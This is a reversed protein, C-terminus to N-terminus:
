RLRQALGSRRHVRRRVCSRIASEGALIWAQKKSRTLATYLLERSLGGSAGPPLVILVKDYESGQSKHISMAFAPEYVGLRALSLSRMGDETGSSEFYARLKGDDDRDIIGVDGNSLGTAPDNRTMMISMARRSDGREGLQQRSPWAHRWLAQNTAHVGLPGNKTACLVQFRHGALLREKPSNAKWHDHYGKACESIWARWPDHSSGASAEDLELWRLEEQSPDRLLELCGEEDGTLIKRALQGIGRTPDFRRSVQLHVSVDQPTPAPLTPAADGRICSEIGRKWASAPTWERHGLCLDGFVAGADVSALQHADGVLLLRAEPSLADMLQAMMVLDVMSSEDVVVLDAELPHSRDRLASAHGGLGLARHITSAQDPILALQEPSLSLRGKAARVSEALRMAAKGTPALLLISPPEVSCLVAIALYNVVSYTKGTGPGGALIAFPSAWANVAGICQLDQDLTASGAFLEELTAIGKPDLIRPERQLARSVYEAVWAEAQYMKRLYLRENDLLLPADGGPADVCASAALLERWQEASPGIFKVEEDEGLDRQLISQIRRSIESVEWCGHGDELDSFLGYAALLIRPDQEKCVRGVAQAFAWALAHRGECRELRAVDNSAGEGQGTM